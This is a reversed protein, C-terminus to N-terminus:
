TSEHWLSQLGATQQPKAAAKSRRGAFADIYTCNKTVGVFGRLYEYIVQAKQETWVPRIPTGIKHGLVQSAGTSRLYEFGYNVRQGEPPLEFLLEGNRDNM